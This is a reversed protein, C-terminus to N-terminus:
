TRGQGQLWVAAVILGAKVIKAYDDPIGNALLTYRVPDAHARLERPPEAAARHRYVAVL